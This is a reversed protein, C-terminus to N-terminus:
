LRTEAYTTMAQRMFEALRPDTKDFNKRFRPDDAYLNGLGTYSERNPTWSGSALWRYHGDLTDLVEQDGPQHGADILEVLAGLQAAWQAMDPPAASDVNSAGWRQRAEQQLEEQRAPDFGEFWHAVSTMDDGEELEEITRTVTRALQAFRDREELLWRRHMRLVEVQDRGQQVIERIAELGVGLERMVLIQQLRLVQEKEYYRYGNGGVWAPSLLGIEDYHRLTRSTVKSMKAVQATSWAM